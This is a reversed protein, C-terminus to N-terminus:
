CEIAKNAYERSTVRNRIHGLPLEMRYSATKETYFNYNSPCPQRNRHPIYDLRRNKHM